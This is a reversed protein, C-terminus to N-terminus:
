SKLLEVIDETSYLYKFEVPQADRVGTCDILEAIGIPEDELDIDEDIAALDDPNNEIDAGMTKFYNILAQKKNEAEFYFVNISQNTRTEDRILFKM